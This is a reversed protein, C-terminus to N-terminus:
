NQLLGDNERIKVFIEIQRFNINEPAPKLHNSPIKRAKSFSKIQRIKQLIFLLCNLINRCLPSYYLSLIM